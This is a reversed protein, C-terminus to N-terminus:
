NDLLKRIRKLLVEFSYPKSLLGKSGVLGHVSGQESDSLGSILQIKIKPYKGYVTKVLEYGYMDPMIVDLLLLDVDENALM